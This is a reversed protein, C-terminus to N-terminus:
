RLYGVSIGAYYNIPAAANYYRSNVANIDNGLSYKQDLINNAGLYVDFACKRLQRKYGVRCNLLHYPTSFATNADNLFIKDCYEYNVDAYIGFTM